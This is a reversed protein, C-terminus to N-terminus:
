RSLREYDGFSESRDHLPIPYRSPFRSDNSWIFCGGFMWGAHGSPVDCLPVAFVYDGKRKLIVTPRDSWWLIEPVGDGTLVVENEKSSLGGNSANGLRKDQLISCIIGKQIM